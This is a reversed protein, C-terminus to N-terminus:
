SSKNESFILDYLSQMEQAAKKAETGLEAVVMGKPTARSFAVRQCLIIPAVEIVDLDTLACLAAQTDANRPYPSAMNLVVYSHLTPNSSLAEEALEDVLGMTWMDVGTPKIPAIVADSVALADRMATADGAGVDIVIDDYYLRAREAANALSNHNIDGKPSPYGNEHRSELWYTASGQRDADILLVRQGLLARMGALNVAITTKGTGGKEGLAAVIM